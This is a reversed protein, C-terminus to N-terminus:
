QVSVTDVAHHAGTSGNVDWDKGRDHLVVALKGESIKV